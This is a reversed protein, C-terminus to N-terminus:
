YVMPSFLQMKVARDRIVLTDTASLTEAGSIFQYNIHIANRREGGWEDGEPAFRGSGTVSYASGEADTITCTGDDAFTLYMRLVGPYLASRSNTEWLVRNRGSTLLSSVDNQVVFQKRYVTTELVTNSGDRVESAGRHLYIGHYENIYNVAFMTFDKPQIDWLASIRPDPDLFASKGRLVTDLNAANLIRIPIVYSLRHSLTDDFFADTLQVEINGNLAGTRIILQNPSSLTYYSSPLLRITDQTSEFLAGACLEDAIEIDLIRDQKNSYVGGMAASILFKRNNDNSNDYIYDGLVLTRVPYQYPFFGATYDFDPFEPENNECAILGVFLILILVIQKMNMM